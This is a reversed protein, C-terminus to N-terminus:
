PILVYHIKNFFFIFDLDLKLIFNSYSEKAVSSNRDLKCTFNQDLKVKAAGCKQFWRLFTFM